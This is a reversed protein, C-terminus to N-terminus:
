PASVFVTTKRGCKLITEYDYAILSQHLSHLSVQKLFVRVNQRSFPFDLISLLITLYTMAIHRDLYKEVLWLLFLGSDM